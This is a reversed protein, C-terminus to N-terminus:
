SVNVLLGVGTREAQYQYGKTWWYMWRGGKEVPAEEKSWLLVRHASM